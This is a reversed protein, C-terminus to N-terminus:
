YVICILSLYINKKYRRTILLKNTFLYAKLVKKYSRVIAHNNGYINSVRVEATCECQITGCRAILEFESPM